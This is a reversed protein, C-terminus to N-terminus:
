FARIAYFNAGAFKSSYLHTGVNFNMQWVSSNDYHSSTWVISNPKNTISSNYCLYLESLSPLFWNDGSNGYNVCQLAVTGSNSAIIMTDKRGKGINEVGEIDSSNTSNTIESTNIGNAGYTGSGVTLYIELYYATYTSFSLYSYEGSINVGEVQFGIENRYYIIGGGPGIDNLRYGWDAYLTINGNIQTNFDYENSFVGNDTYWGRFHNLTVGDATTTPPSPATIKEGYLIGTIPAIATGGNSNFTVTYTPVVETWKAHLTIDNKPSVNFNFSIEFTGNDEFWGNFSYGSKVPTHPIEVKDDMILTQKPVPSGGNSNFTVTRKNLIKAMWPNECALFFLLSFLTISFLPFHYPKPKYCNHDM